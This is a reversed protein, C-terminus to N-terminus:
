LGQIEQSVSEMESQISSIEEELEKIRKNSLEILMANKAIQIGVNIHDEFKGKPIKLIDELVNIAQEM